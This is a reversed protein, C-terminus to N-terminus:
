QHPASNGGSHQACLKAIEVLDGQGKIGFNEIYKAIEWGCQQVCLKAIEVLDGQGKIGFNKIDCATGEGNQQACLKAIEVLDEQNKVGFNNIYVATGGGRQKACLKAIEVLDEQNEIGFNKIHEATEWGYKQACLKAIEVLDRQGKIGFNKIFGATKWGRKQVCLKAIEVLDEQNGIGFNKIFGATAGGDQQACLKAIEVLDRQGKIGFNQFNQIFQETRKTTKAFRLAFDKRTDNCAGKLAVEVASWDSMLLRSLEYFLANKGKSLFHERVDGWLKAITEVTIQEQFVLEHEWFFRRVVKVQQDFITDSINKMQPALESILIDRALTEPNVGLKKRFLRNIRSFLAEKSSALSILKKQIVYLSERDNSSIQDTNSEITDLILNVAEKSLQGKEPLAITENGISVANGAALDKLFFHINGGM